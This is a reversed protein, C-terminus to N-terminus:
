LVFRSVTPNRLRNPGFLGGTNGHNLPPISDLRMFTCTGM